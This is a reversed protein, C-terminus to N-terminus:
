ASKNQEAIQKGVVMGQMMALAIGKEEDTMGILIEALEEGLSRIKTEQNPTM